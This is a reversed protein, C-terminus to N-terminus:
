RRRAASREGAAFSTMFNTDGIFTVARGRGGRRHGSPRADLVDEGLRRGPLAGDLHADPAVEGPAHFFQLVLERLRGVSQSGESRLSTCGPPIASSIFATRSCIRAASRGNVSRYM